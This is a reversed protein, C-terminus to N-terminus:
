IGSNWGRKKLSLPIENLGQTIGAGYVNAVGKSEEDVRAKDSKNLPKNLRTIHM